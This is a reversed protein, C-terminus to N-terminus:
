LSIGFAAARKKEKTSWQPYWLEETHGKLDFHTKIVWGWIPDFRAEEPFKKGLLNFLVRLEKEGWPTAFNLEFMEKDTVTIKRM